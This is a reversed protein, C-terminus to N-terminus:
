LGLWPYSHSEFREMFASPQVRTKYFERLGCDEGGRAVYAAYMQKVAQHGPCHSCSPDNGAPITWNGRMLYCPPSGFQPSNSMKLCRQMPPLTLRGAEGELCECALAFACYLDDHAGVGEIGGPVFKIRDRRRNRAGAEMVELFELQERLDLLRRPLAVARNMFLTKTHTTLRDLHAPDMTTARINEVGRTRAREILQAAQWSDALIRAPRFRRWLAVVEDEVQMLSVPTDPTGQWSRLVDVVVRGTAAEVHCVAIATADKVLGLDIGMAYKTGWEGRDPEALDVLADRLEESTILSHESQAWSNEVLRTYKSPVMEFARRMGDVWAQSVWPIAKWAEPGSLISAFLQPDTGALGRQWLDWLVNGAHAQSRLGAYSSFVWLPSPRTPPPALAELVEYGADDWAHCEDAIVAANHAGHAGRTDMPIARLVHHQTYRGGTKPDRVLENFLIETQTIRALRSLRADREVMRVAQQFVVDRSQALDSAVVVVERDPGNAHDAFLEWLAIAAATTSKGAKKPWSILVQGYRRRQTAPDITDIATIVREQEPHFRLPVLAGSTDPVRIFTDIFRRLSVPKM